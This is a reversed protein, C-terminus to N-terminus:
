FSITTGGRTTREQESTMVSGLERLRTLIPNLKDQKSYSELTDRMSRTHQIDLELLEELIRVTKEWVEVLLDKPANTTIFPDQLWDDFAKLTRMM